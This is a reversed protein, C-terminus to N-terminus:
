KNATRRQRKQMMEAQHTTFEVESIEGDGNTDLNEFTPANAANKMDGGAAAREAMHRSRAQYFEEAVIAGNGDRDISSFTPMDHGKGKGKQPDQASVSDALALTMGAIVLWTTIRKM